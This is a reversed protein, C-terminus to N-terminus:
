SGPARYLEVILGDIAWRIVQEKAELYAANFTFGEIRVANGTITVTGTKEICQLQGESTM